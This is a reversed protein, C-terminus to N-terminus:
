SRSSEAGLEGPEGVEESRLLLLWVQRVRSEERGRTGLLDLSGQSARLDGSDRLDRAVVPVTQAKREKRGRSARRDLWAPSARRPLCPSTTVQPTLTPDWCWDLPDQPDRPDLGGRGM